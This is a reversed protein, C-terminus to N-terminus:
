HIFSSCDLPHPSFQMSNWKLMLFSDEPCALGLESRFFRKNILLACLHLSPNFCETKVRNKHIAIFMKDMMQLLLFKQDPSSFLPCICKCFVRSPSVAKPKQPLFLMTVCNCSCNQMQSIKSKSCSNLLLLFTYSGAQKSHGEYTINPYPRSEECRILHALDSRLQWQHDRYITPLTRQYKDLNLTLTTGCQRETHIIYLANIINPRWNINKLTIPHM